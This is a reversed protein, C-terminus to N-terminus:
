SPEVPAVTTASSREAMALQSPGIGNETALRPPAQAAFRSRMPLAAIVLLLLGAGAVAYATRPSWAAVIAAGLLYGIGPMAAGLSEMLGTIRAQYDPPTQEQLATM